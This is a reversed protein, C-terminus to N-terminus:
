FLEIKAAAAAEAAVVPQWDPKGAPCLRMYECAALDDQLIHNVLWRRLKRLIDYAAHADHGQLGAALATMEKVVEDHHAKHPQLNPDATSALWEEEYRFHQCIWGLLRTITASLVAAESAMGQNLTRFLRNLQNVIALHQADIEAVGSILSENWEVLESLLKCADVETPAQAVLGPGSLKDLGDTVIKVARAQSESCVVIKETIGCHLLAGTFINRTELLIGDIEQVQARSAALTKGAQEALTALGAVLTDIEHESNASSARTEEALHQANQLKESIEAASQTSKESLKNVEDAVVAFGQGAEGARAAEISANLALMSTQKAIKKANQTISDMERSVIAIREAKESSQRACTLVQAARRVMDAALRADEEAREACQKALADLARARAEIAYGSDMQQRSGDTLLSSIAAIRKTQEQIGISGKRINKAISLLQSGATVLAAFLQDADSRPRLDQALSGAGLANLAAVLQRLSKTLELLEPDSGSAALSAAQALDGRALQSLLEAGVRHPAGAPEQSFLLYCGVACIAVLDLAAGLASSPFFFQHVAAIATTVAALMLGRRVANAKGSM